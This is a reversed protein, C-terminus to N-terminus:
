PGFVIFPIDGPALAVIQEVALRQRENSGIRRDISLNSPASVRPKVHSPGPFLLRESHIVARAVADHM